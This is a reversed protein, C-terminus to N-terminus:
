RRGTEKPARAIEALVGDLKEAVENNWNRLV